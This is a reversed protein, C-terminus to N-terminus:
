RDRMADSMSDLNVSGRWRRPRPAFRRLPLPMRAAPRAIGRRRGPPPPARYVKITHAVRHTVSMQESEHGREGQRAATWGLRHTTGRGVRRAAAGGVGEDGVSWERGGGSAAAREEGRGVGGEGRVEAGVM